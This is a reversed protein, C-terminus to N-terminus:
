FNGVLAKNTVYSTDYIDSGNDYKYTPPFTIRGEAYFPFALGALM